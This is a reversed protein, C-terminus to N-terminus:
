ASRGLLREGLVVLRNSGRIQHELARLHLYDVYGEERLMLPLQGILGESWNRLQGPLSRNERRASVSKRVSHCFVRYADPHGPDFSCDLAGFQNRRQNIAYLADLGEGGRILEELSPMQDNTILLAAKDQVSVRTSEVGENGRLLTVIVDLRLRDEQQLLNLSRDNKNGAVELTLFPDSVLSIGGARYSSKNNLRRSEEEEIDVIEGEHWVEDRVAQLVARANIRDLIFGVNAVALQRLVAEQAQKKGDRVRQEERIQLERASLWSEYEAGATDVEEYKVEVQTSM